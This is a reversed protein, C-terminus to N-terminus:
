RLFAPLNHPLYKKCLRYAASKNIFVLATVLKEMKCIQHSTLIKPAYRRYQREWPKFEKRLHKHTRCVPFLCRLYYMQYQNLAYGQQPRNGIKEFYLYKNLAWEIGDFCRPSFDSNMISDPRQCYYLYDYTSEVVIKQCQDCIDLQIAIDEYCRGVPFRLNEFIQRRYVKNFVMTLIDWCVKPYFQHIFDERQYITKVPVSPAQSIPEGELNVYLIGCAAIDADHTQVLEMLHRYMDPTISDDSDVFGLYEGQAIELGANRADSLGGNKKHLVRVRSDQRAYSDCIEPCKDPSGDDVLILEFDTFTQALISEICRPLYQEVKYVPVIISLKM